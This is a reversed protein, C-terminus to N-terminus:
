RRYTASYTNNFLPYQPLVILIVPMSAFITAVTLVRNTLGDHYYASFVISSFAVIMTMISIFLASLGVILKLPLLRLFDSEAFPSSFSIADAVAFVRISTEKFPTPTGTKGENGTFLNFAAVFMVIAILIALLMCSKATCKMWQEGIKMLEKHKMNFSERPTKYDLNKMERFSPRVM